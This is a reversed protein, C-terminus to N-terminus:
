KVQQARAWAWDAIATHRADAEVVIAQDDCVHRVMETSPPFARQDVLKGTRREYLRAEVRPAKAMRTPCAVHDMTIDLAVLWRIQTFRPPEGRLIRTGVVWLGRATGQPEADDGPLKVPGRVIAAFLKDIAMAGALRRVPLTTEARAGDPWSLTIGIKGLPERVKGSGLDRPPMALALPTVDGYTVAADGDLSVWDVTGDWGVVGKCTRPAACAIRDGTVTIAVTEARATGVALLVAVFVRKMRPVM